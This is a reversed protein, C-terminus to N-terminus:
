PSLLRAGAPLVGLLSLGLVGAGAHLELLKISPASALLSQSALLWRLAARMDRIIVEFVELNAQRFVAPGFGFRQGGITEEVQPPGHLRLWRKQGEPEQRAWIGSDSGASGDSSGRFHAWISHWIRPMESEGA